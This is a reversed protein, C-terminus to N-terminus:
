VIRIGKERMRELIENRVRDPDLDLILCVNEFSNFAQKNGNFIWTSASNKYNGHSNGKSHIVKRLFLDDIARQLVLAWLQRFIDPNEFLESNDPTISTQM